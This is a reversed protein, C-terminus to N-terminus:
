SATIRALLRSRRSRGSTISLRRPSEPWISASVMRRSLWLTSSPPSLGAATARENRSPARQAASRMGAEGPSLVRTRPVCIEPARQDGDSEPIKLLTPARGARNWGIPEGWKIHCSVAIGLRRRTRRPGGRRSWPRTHPGRWQSPMWCHKLSIQASAMDSRSVKPPASRFPADGREM